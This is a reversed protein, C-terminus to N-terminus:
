HDLDFVFYRDNKRLVTKKVSFSPWLVAMDRGHYPLLEALLQFAMIKGHTLLSKAMVQYHRSCSMSM